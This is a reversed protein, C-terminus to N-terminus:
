EKSHKKRDKLKLSLMTILMVIMYQLTIWFSAVYSPMREQWALFLLGGHKETDVFMYQFPTEYIAFLIYNIAILPLLEYIKLSYKKYAVTISAIVILMFSIIDGFLLIIIKIEMLDYSRGFLEVLLLMIQVNLLSALYIVLNIGLIVRLRKM